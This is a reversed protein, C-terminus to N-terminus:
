LKIINKNPIKDETTKSILIKEYYGSHTQWPVDNNVTNIESCWRSQTNDSLLLIDASKLDTDHYTPNYNKQVISDHKLRYM